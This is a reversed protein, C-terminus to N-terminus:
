RGTVDLRVYPQELATESFQGRVSTDCVYRGSLIVFMNMLHAAVATARKVRDGRKEPAHSGVLSYFQQRLLVHRHVIDHDVVRASRGCASKFDSARLPPNDQTSLARQICLTCLYQHFSPM